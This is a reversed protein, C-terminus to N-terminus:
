DEIHKIGGYWQACASRSDAYSLLLATLLNFSEKTILPIYMQM